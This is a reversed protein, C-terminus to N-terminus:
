QRLSLCLSLTWSHPLLACKSNSLTFCCMPWQPLIIQIKDDYFHLLNENRSRKLLMSEHLCFHSSFEHMISNNFQDCTHVHTEQMNAQNYYLTKIKIYLVRCKSQDFSNVNVSRTCVHQKRKKCINNSMTYMYRLLIPLGM